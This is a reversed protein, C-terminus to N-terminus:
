FYILVNLLDILSSTAYVENTIWLKSKDAQLLNWYNLVTDDQLFMFGEASTYRDFLKPLFRYYLIPIFFNINFIFFFECMINAKFNLLCM